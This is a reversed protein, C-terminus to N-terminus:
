GNEKNLWTKCLHYFVDSLYVIGQIKDDELVPLRRAGKKVMRDIVVMLHDEPSVSLVPSSMIQEVRLNRFQDLYPELEGDWVTVSDVEYNMFPPRLHYLVDTMSIMGVLRGVEDTVMIGFPKYGTERVRGEFILRVAESVPADPRIAAYDQVMIDKAKLEM